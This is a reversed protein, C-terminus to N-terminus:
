LQADDACISWCFCFSSVLLVQHLFYVDFAIVKGWDENLTTHSPKPLPDRENFDYKSNSVYSPPSPSPSSSTYPWRSPPSDLYNQCWHPPRHLDRETTSISMM